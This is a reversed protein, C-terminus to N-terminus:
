HLLMNKAINVAAPMYASFFYYPLMIIYIATFAITIAKRIEGHDMEGLKFNAKILADCLTSFSLLGL